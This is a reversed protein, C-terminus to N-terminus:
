DIAYQAKFLHDRTRTVTRAFAQRECCGRRNPIRIQVVGSLQETMPIFLISSTTFTGMSMEDTSFIYESLFSTLQHQLDESAEYVLPEMAPYLVALQKSFIVLM